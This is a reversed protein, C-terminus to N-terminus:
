LKREFYCEGPKHAVIAYMKRERKRHSHSRRGKVLFFFLPLKPQLTVMTVMGIFEGM